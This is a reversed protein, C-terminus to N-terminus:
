KAIACWRGCRLRGGHTTIRRFVVVAVAVRWTAVSWTRRAMRRVCGIRSSAVLCHAVGLAMDTWIPRWVGVAVGHYGVASRIAGVVGEARHLVAIAIVKFTLLLVVHHWIVLRWARLAEIATLLWPRSVHAAAMHLRVHVM